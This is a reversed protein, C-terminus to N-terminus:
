SHMFVTATYLDDMQKPQVYHCFPAESTCKRGRFKCSLKGDQKLPLYGYDERLSDNFINYTQKEQHDHDLELTLWKEDPVAIHYFGIFYGLAHDSHFCFGVGDSWENVNTYSLGSSYAYMLDAVSMGDRFFSKEGVLNQNLRWCAMQNFGNNKLNMNTNWFDTDCYIPRIINEIAKRTLITGFGGFPFAFQIVKPHVLRCGTIVHSEDMPHMTPFNNVFYDMNMYTDDDLIVLYNPLSPLSTENNVRNTGKSYQQLALNLGDLPRKQACMWGTHNKPKYLRQRLLTSVYSQGDLTKCFNNVTDLQRMTFNTSCLVDTDNLETVRFYQRVSNHSAFTREQADQLDAKLLSGVSIIDIWPDVYEELTPAATESPEATESPAVSEIESGTDSYYIGHHMNDIQDPQVQHCIMDERHCQNNENGCQSTSGLTTFGYLENRRLTDSLDAGDL